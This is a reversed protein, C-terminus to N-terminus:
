CLYGSVSIFVAWITNVEMPKGFKKLHRMKSNTTVILSSVDLYFEHFWHFDISNPGDENGNGPIQASTNTNDSQDSTTKSASLRDSGPSQSENCAKPPDDNLKKLKVSESGLEQAWSSGLTSGLLEKRKKSKERAQRLRESVESM